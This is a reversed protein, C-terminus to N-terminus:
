KDVEFKCAVMHMECGDMARKLGYGTRLLRVCVWAIAVHYAGLPMIAALSNLILLGGGWPWQDQCPWTLGSPKLHAVKLTCTLFPIYTSKSMVYSYINNISCITLYNM